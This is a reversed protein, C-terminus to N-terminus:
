NKDEIARGLRLLVKFTSDTIVGTAQKQDPDRAYYLSGLRLVTFSTQAAIPHVFAAAIQTCATRENVVVANRGDENPAIRQQTRMETVLPSASTMVMTLEARASDAMQQSSSCPAQAGATRATAAVVCVVLARVVWTGTKM